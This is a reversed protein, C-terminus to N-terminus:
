GPTRRPQRRGATTWFRQRYTEVSIDFKALLAERLDPYSNSKDEDMATYAEIAKGSLLRYPWVDRPWQWTKLMQEFRLLYNEIDEGQQCLPMKPKKRQVPPLDITPIDPKSPFSLM